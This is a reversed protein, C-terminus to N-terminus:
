SNHYLYPRHLKSFCKRWHKKYYFFPFTISTLDKCDKFAGEGISTVFYKRGNYTLYAPIVIDGTYHFDEEFTVSVSKNDSNINYYIGGAIWDAANMSIALLLIYITLVFKKM